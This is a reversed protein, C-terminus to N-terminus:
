VRLGAVRRLMERVTEDGTRYRLLLRVEDPSQAVHDASGADEEGNLPTMPGRGTALWEYSVAMSRALLMLRHSAPAVVSASEWNAVAGRTVGVVCALQEQSLRARRRAQRIRM